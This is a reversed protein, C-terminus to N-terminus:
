GKKKPADKKSLHSEIKKIISDVALYNWSLADLKESFAKAEKPALKKFLEQELYYIRDSKATPVDNKHDHGVYTVGDA